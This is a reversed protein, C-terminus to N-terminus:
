EPLVAEVGFRPFVAPDSFATIEAVESGALRLVMLVRAVLEGTESSRRYLLFAPQGNAAVPVMRQGAAGATFVRAGFFAEVTRRGRFWLVDPPMSVIVDEKLLAVFASLDAEEWARVYRELLARDTDALRETSALAVDQTEPLRTKLTARARQLASNASAVSSDLIEATQAASWGLVDRLLLAARQRAPLHQIAAVFALTVSQRAMYAAEPDAPAAPLLADPFPELWIPERVPRSPQSPDTAGPGYEPPLIRRRRRKLLDLCTNTAIRYLWSRLAARSELDERKRWAKVLTDQVAEEADHLSGLMRYCHALLEGRHAEAGDLLDREPLPVTPAAANAARRSTAPRM